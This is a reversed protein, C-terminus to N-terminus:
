SRGGPEPTLAAALARRGPKRIASETKADAPGVSFVVPVSCRGEEPCSGSPISLSGPSPPFSLRNISPLALYRLSPSGPSPPFSLRTISPLAPHHLPSGPLPPVSLRTVPPSGPSPRDSLWTISPGAQPEREALQGQATVDPPTRGGPVFRVRDSNELRRRKALQPM